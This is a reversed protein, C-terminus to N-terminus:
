ESLGQKRARAWLGHATRIVREVALVVAPDNTCVAAALQTDERAADPGDLGPGCCDLHVHGTRLVECEFRYGAAILEAALADLEPGPEFTLPIRRAGPLVFQTFAVTM